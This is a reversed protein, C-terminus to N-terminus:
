LTAVNGIAGFVYLGLPFEAGEGLVEVIFGVLHFV